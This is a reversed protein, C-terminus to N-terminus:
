TTPKIARGRLNRLPVPVRNTQVYPLLSTFAIPIQETITLQLKTNYDGAPVINVVKNTFSSAMKKDFFTDNEIASQCDDDEMSFIVLLHKFYPIARDGFLKDKNNNKTNNNNINRKTKKEMIQQLLNPLTDGNKSILISYDYIVSTGNWIDSFSKCNRTVYGWYIGMKERPYNADVIKGRKSLTKSEPHDTIMVTVRQNIQLFGVSNVNNDSSSSSSSSGIDCKCQEHKGIQVNVMQPNSNDIVIGEMFISSTEKSQHPISLPALMDFYELHPHEPNFLLPRLYEPCEMFSLLNCFLETDDPQTMKSTTSQEAETTSNPSSNSYVLVEDIEFASLFRGVQSAKLTKEKKSNNKLIASPIALSITFNSREHNDNVLFQTQRTEEEEEEEEVFNGEPVSPHQLKRKPKKLPKRHSDSDSKRKTGSSLEFIDNDDAEEYDEIIKNINKSHKSEGFQNATSSSM